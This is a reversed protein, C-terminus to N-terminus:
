GLSSSFSKKKREVHETLYKESSLGTGSPLMLAHFYALLSTLLLSFSSKQNQLCLIIGFTNYQLISSEKEREKMYQM